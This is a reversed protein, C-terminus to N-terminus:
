LSIHGTGRLVYTSTLRALSHQLQNHFPNRDALPFSLKIGRSEKNGKRVNSGQRLRWPKKKHGAAEPRCPGEREEQVARRKESPTRRPGEHGARKKHRVQTM